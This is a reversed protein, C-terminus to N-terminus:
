SALMPRGDSGSVRVDKWQTIKWTSRLVNGDLVQEDPYEKFFYIARDGPVRYILNDTPDAPNKAEVELEVSTITMKKWSLDVDTGDSEEADQVVGPVFTLRIDLVDDSEFMNRHVREEDAWGWFPPLDPSDQLDLPDFKFSFEVPDFLKAYEDLKREVYATRLNALVNAPSTQPKYNSPPQNDNPDGKDPSFLCGAASIALLGVLVPLVFAAIRPLKM